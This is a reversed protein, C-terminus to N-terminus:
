VTDKSRMDLVTRAKQLVEALIYPKSIFDKVGDDTLKAKVAPDIFGTAIIVSARPNMSKIQYFVEIGSLHPMSLDSIVLAIEEAHQHYLSVAQQGDTASIVTYGVSALASQLVVRLGEEDEAILVTEKGGVPQPQVQETTQHGLPAKQIAPFYIHFTTGKGEQSEVDIFGGHSGVIGHVVALGLGTGQGPEKTTFFPEFIREKTKEDMGIGTDSVSLEVYSGSTIGPVRNMLQAGEIQRTTISLTGGSPMADRANVCLNLLLQHIQTADAVILPLKPDLNHEVAITRPFTEHLLKATEKVLLNVELPQFVSEQKRAFTLMQRVLSAGRQTAQTIADLSQSFHAPDRRMQLLSVHGLIIGLINNFDHAIGSTLTGLSELRAAQQLRQELERRERELRKRETIDRVASLVYKEGRLEVVTVLAEMEVLTGDKRKGYFEYLVPAPEGRLRKRSYELMRQNDQESQVVAIPQGILEAPHSYGYLASFTPNAYVIIGDRDELVLGDRTADLVSDLLAREDELAQEVQKRATIDHAFGTVGVVEGNRRQAVGLVEAFITKGGKGVLRLVRFSRTEGALARRFEQVALERDDPHILETFSKGLWEDVPFGTITEFAPNLLTFRGDPAISFVVEPVHEFLSRYRAESEILAREAQKRETIDIATGIAAPKGQWEIRGATFDVWRETGDKRVIKFEYRNPMSEGRLRALGRQRVLERYEPHVVQWFPMSLLEEESYGSLELSARNVYVYRDDQYVFIATATTDALRKFWERQEKLLLEANRQATIDQSAGYIRVVRNEEKSWIPTAYDRLWRIDGNKRVVRFESVDPSGTTVKLVHQRAAPRDEPFVINLWGGPARLEEPAYGLAQTFSESMWVVHLAADPEVRLAYAYDSVVHTIARFREESERLIKQSQMKETVDEIALLILQSRNEERMLRRANLLMTRTGIHEFTHTVEFDDFHSNSPLIDELLRRLPPIDWQRNGLEYLKRGITEAAITQFVRYFSRNAAVVDLKDDLVLLPERITAIISEAFDRADRLAREASREASRDRFVLVVGAIRGRDDKIPAGADAIPYEKGDKSILLTHNALGIVIGSRLVRSVPNEARKRTHENVIRFVKSIPKRHADAESWGTLREAVPNMQLVRGRTDTTIVGDGISYLTTRFWQECLRGHSEGPSSTSTSRRRSRLSRTPM